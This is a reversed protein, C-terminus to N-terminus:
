FSIFQTCYEHTKKKKLGATKVLGDFLIFYFGFGAACVRKSCHTSRTHVNHLGASLLSGSPESGSRGKGGDCNIALSVFGVQIYASCFITKHLKTKNQSQRCTHPLTQIGVMSLVLPRKSGNYHNRSQSSM